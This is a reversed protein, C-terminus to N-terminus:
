PTKGVRCIGQGDIMYQIHGWGRAIRQGSQPYRMCMMKHNADYACKGVVKLPLKYHSPVFM